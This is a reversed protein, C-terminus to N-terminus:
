YAHFQLRLWSQNSHPMDDQFRPADIVEFERKEILEYVENDSWSKIEGQKDEWIQNKHQRLEASSAEKRNQKKKTTPKEATHVTRYCHELDKRVNDDTSDKWERCNLVPESAEALYQLLPMPNPVAAINLNEREADTMFSFIDHRPM